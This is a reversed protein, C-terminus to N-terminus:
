DDFKRVSTLDDLDLHAIRVDRNTAAALREAKVITRCAIVVSHGDAALATATAAGVGSNGGVM